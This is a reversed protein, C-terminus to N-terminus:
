LAFRGRRPSRGSIRRTGGVPISTAEVGYLHALAEQRKIHVLRDESTAISLSGKNIWGTAQGTEQELEHYFNVSYQHLKGVSYSM